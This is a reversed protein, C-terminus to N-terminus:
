RPREARILQGCAGQIDTGLNRRITVAVGAERLADRFAGAAERTSPRHPTDTPNWVILNVHLLDPRGVSRVFGALQKAQEPGDNEGELLVYELFIKRGNRELAERLAKALEKLPFARNAPVIKDRVVNDASHLSLALNVQPFEETFRKIGTLIGVTSVSIHRDALGGREPDTLVRLSEAVADYCHFPEGMGMYVVNTLRGRARGVRLYRRWFFVQDAIEESTLSRELGMLGTACFTCGMACGVQSSICCSWADGPVPKLLVSEIERGDKLELVAKHARGDGAVAVSVERVSSIPAEKELAERIPAPLTTIEHYSSVGDQYVAKCVQKLRFDPQRHAKLVARVKEIDM